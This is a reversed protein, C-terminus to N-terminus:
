FSDNEKEHSYEPFEEKFDEEDLVDEQYYIFGDPSFGFKHFNEDVEIYDWDNKVSTDLNDLALHFLWESVAEAEGFNKFIFDRLEKTYFHNKSRHNIGSEEKNDDIWKHLEKFEKGTRKKSLAFHVRWKPM